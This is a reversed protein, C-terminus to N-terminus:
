FRWTMQGYILRPIQAPIIDNRQGYELHRDDLLNEVNLSLELDTRLQWGLRIDLRTYAPIDLDSLEDVYYLETDLSWGHTLDLASRLQIQNVPSFGAEEEPFPASSDPDTQLHMYLWSYGTTLKWFSLPHWVTVLEVGFTKGEMKNDVDYPVVIHPPLPDTEAFAAEPRPEFTRLDDYENYFAALDISLRNSPALRYGLEYATLTESDFTKNGLFAGLYTTSTYPPYPLTVRQVDFESRFDHEGRSPTRVARSVAAWATQQPGPKWRLRINPQIEYGTYDNHEFKSGMTLWWTNPKLTFEDQVFGSFVQDTRNDPTISISQGEETEDQTHRYGVGWIVEQSATLQFRHQFDFDVTDRVEELVIEKRETKDYYIQLTMDSTDGYARRWRALLDMGSAKGTYHQPGLAPQTLTEPLDLMQEKQEQYIDSQLTVTDRIDIDLDMRFGGRASRWSDLDSDGVVPDFSHRNNAKAYIRWAGDTGLRDGFRMGTDYTEHTGTGMTVLPGQTEQATKTIINIVGNVANAGWLTAGPGRIIEIRDIDEMMTDQVDWYVGSYLPTYVSRGDILVLLKNSFTDNFGRASVTWKDADVRSVQIGPAMRLAEAITRAGARRIDDATIVFVAATTDSLKESKKSVSTVETELLDEIGLSKLYTLESDAWSLGATSFVALLSPLLLVVFMKPRCHRQLSRMQNSGGSKM